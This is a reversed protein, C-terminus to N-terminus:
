CKMIREYIDFLRMFLLPSEPFPQLSIQSSGETPSSFGLQVSAFTAASSPNSSSILKLYGMFHVEAAKPLNSDENMKM